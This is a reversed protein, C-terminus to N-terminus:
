FIDHWNNQTRGLWQNLNTSLNNQIYFGSKAAISENKFGRVSGQGGM